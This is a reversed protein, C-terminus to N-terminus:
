DDDEVTYFGLGSGTCGSGAGLPGREAAVKSMVNWNQLLQCYQETPTQKVMKHLVSFLASESSDDSNDIFEDDSDDDDSFMSALCPEDDSDEGPWDDFDPLGELDLGDM